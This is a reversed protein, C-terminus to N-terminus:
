EENPQVLKKQAGSMDYPIYNELIRLEDLGERPEFGIRDRYENGSIFGRDSGALLVDSITKIDWNLLSWYNFRLYMKPSLILKKTMEQQLGMVINLITTNIFMEWEKQNFEGIGLLFAPIGLVSAVTSKDLKVVDSIALDALSLPRIQEVSFQEAPILWPEGVEASEVYNELLKKRGSKSSFEETLADVKVIVSPKWKSEMFGKETAAAQKLNNAVDRLYVTFGKGKWPYYQDPNHVFHLVEDPEFQKGDITVTYSRNITDPIFSIRYPPIVELSGLFGDSTHPLVVSNGKGYLLLNMVIAEIWTKRTMYPSPEIDIKRSLENVVRVDGNETNAMLHITMTGIMQAIKSCATIIEPCKDLSTYGACCIDDQGLWIGVQPQTSRVQQRQKNKKSLIDGVKLYCFLAVFQSILRM